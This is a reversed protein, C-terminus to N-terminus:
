KGTNATDKAASDVRVRMQQMDASLTSVPVAPVGAARMPKINADIKMASSFHDEDGISTLMMLLLGAAPIGVAFLLRNRRRLGTALSLHAFLAAGAIAGFVATTFVETSPRPWLFHFWQAADGYIFIATLATGAIGLHWTYQARGRAIKNTVAWAAAWTMLMFLASVMATAVKAMFDRTPITAWEDLGVLLLIAAVAAGRAAWAAVPQRQAWAAIASIEADKVAAALPAAPDVVRLLTRGIRLRTGNVVPARTVRATADNVRMGNVSGADEAYVGSADEAIRLHTADVYPDALVIDNEYGRGITAPLARVFARAAIMGHANLVEIVLRPASM